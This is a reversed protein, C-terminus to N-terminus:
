SVCKLCRRVALNDDLNRTYGDDSWDDGRDDSRDYSWNDCGGWSDSREGASEATDAESSGRGRASSWKLDCEGSDSACRVLCNSFIIEIETVASSCFRARSGHCM